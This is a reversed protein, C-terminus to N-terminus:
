ASALAATMTSGILKLSEAADEGSVLAMEAALREQGQKLLDSDKRTLHARAKHWTLDRVVTALSLVEGTKIDADIQAQRERFDNPLQSPSSRLTSLVQRFAARTMAPRIGSEEITLVPVHVILGQDPMDIVYYSKAEGVFQRRVIDRIQGPGYQPHVVKDGVSFQM